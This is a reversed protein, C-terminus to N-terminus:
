RAGRAARYAIPECNPDHVEAGRGRAGCVDCIHLGNLEARVRVAEALADAARLAEADRSGFLARYADEATATRNLPHEDTWEVERTEVAMVQPSIARNPYRTHELLERVGDAGVDDTDVILVEVRHVKTRSVMTESREPDPLVRMAKKKWEPWGAVEERASRLSRELWNPGSV